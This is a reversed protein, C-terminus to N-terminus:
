LTVLITKTFVVTMCLVCTCQTMQARTVIYKFRKTDSPSFLAMVTVQDGDVNEPVENREAIGWSLNSFQKFKGRKGVIIAGDRLNAVENQYCWIWQVPPFFFCFFGWCGLFCGSVRGWDWERGEGQPCKKRKERAQQKQIQANELCVGRNPRRAAHSVFSLKEEFSSWTMWSSQFVEFCGCNEQDQRLTKLLLTKFTTPPWIHM